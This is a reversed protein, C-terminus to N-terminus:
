FATCLGGCSGGDEGGCVKLSGVKGHPRGAADGRQLGGLRDGSFRYGTGPALGHRIKESVFIFRNGMDRARRRM